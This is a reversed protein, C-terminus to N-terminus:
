LGGKWADIAYGCEVAYRTEGTEQPKWFWSAVVSVAMLISM